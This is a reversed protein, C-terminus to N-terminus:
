EADGATIVFGPATADATAKGIRVGKGSEDPFAVHITVPFDWRTTVRGSFRGPEIRVDKLECAGGTLHLSTGLLVPQKGTWPAIRLVRASHGPITLTVTDKGDLVGMFKQERFEFVAWPGVAGGPMIEKITLTRTTEEAEFNFVVLTWWPELANDQPTVFTRLLTPCTPHEWDLPEAAPAASPIIHSLLVRRDEELEIFREGISVLGGGVYQNVVAGFAEEDNLLGRSLHPKSKRFREARRRLMVSDPDVHWLRGYFSRFINQKMTVLMRPRASGGRNWDSCMDSGSRLSNVLGASGEYLGGCGIIYDEGVAERLIEM